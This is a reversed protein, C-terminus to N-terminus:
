TTISRYLLNGIVSAPFTCAVTGNTNLVGTTTQVMAYPATADHLEVTVNDCDTTPNPLGQNNLVPQMAGSGIYFGQLYATLNLTANCINTAATLSLVINGTNASYGETVVYYTGATLGVAQISSSTGSCLPGNDDNSSIHSGSGDLLHVYTDFASGCLSIDVNSTSCLTFKYWVDGSTQNLTGGAYSDTYCGNNETHVYPTTGINGADIATALSTGATPAAFNVFVPTSNGTFSGCTVSCYYWYPVSQTMSLTATNTGIPNYTINDLSWYWQYIVGSGPTANQLSLNFVTSSNCVSALDSLTNGPTPTGTCPCLDTTVSIPGVYTSYGNGLCNARLYVDYTTGCSMGTSTYTTSTASEVTGTGPTFGTAGYEIEWDTEACGTVWTFTAGTPTPTNSAFSTPAPCPPPPDITVIYDEAEGYGYSSCPDITPGNTIWACRVRLRHPGPTPNCPINIPFTATGFSSGITTPTSGIKETSAFVGDDNFDVWAAVGQGSFSGITVTCNYSTGAVMTGTYNPATYVAPDYYTYSVNPSIATGSNNNLTTGSVQVQSILDGYQIGYTYGPICYCQNAPSQAVQVPNSYTSSGSCTVLCRFWKNGGTMTYSQFQGTGLLAQNTTFTNDDAVEWQYTVGTGTTTNQLSLNATVVGNLCYNALSTITNGPNPTGSCAAAAAIDIRYDETEGYLLTSCAMTNDLTYGYYETRIRMRTQGPVATYPIVVSTNYTTVFGSSETGITFSESPDFTGNQNYDIWGRATCYYGMNVSIPLVDGQTVNLVPTPYYTFYPAATPYSTSNNITGATVNYIVGYFGGSTGYTSSAVCYCNLYNDMDVYLSTAVTSASSAGCTITCRYYKPTTQVAAETAATGLATLNTTFSADDASEWQYTIGTLGSYNYSLSLNFSTGSCALSAGVVNASPPTGNCPCASTTVSIPGVYTSYGNALCNARLYVDSTTGCPMGVATYPNSSVSEVTGTGPTFGTNGYEIEWDTEACGINWTFTAGSTTQSGSTMAFTNPAPCPLPQSLTVLYDETENYSYTTCPDIALGNVQGYACKVRLRHVGIPPNCALVIPFSTSGGLAGVVGSGAAQTTTYGLRESASFVGDDNYDMWATYHEPYQGAFVKCSYTNGATLTAVSGLGTYDSYGNGNLGVGQNGPVPDSPCGTGSNNTYLATAGDLLQVQAIVDGDGCGYSNVNTPVCYCQNPAGQPLFVPASVGVAGGACTVTCRYYKSSTQGTMAQSNTTSSLTTVNTTFAADDASQWVYSATGAVANQLSLTFPNQGCGVTASCLTNGPNPSAPSVLLPTSYGTNGSCTVACRYYAATNPITTVFTQTTALNQVNTTFAADDASQWQFTFGTGTLAGSFSLTTATGGCANNATAATNGPVPTGTCAAGSNIVISVDDYNLYFDGSTWFADWKIYLNQGGPPTFTVTATTCTASVIHNSQNITQVTTWPGTATAGYQVNFSGWPNPTGVTNASWNAVKYKYTVVVTGGTTTGILPSVMNGTTVGSYLNRRMSASGCATTATTRTINGTWGTANANFDNTYTVQANVFTSLFLMVLTSCFVLLKNTKTM